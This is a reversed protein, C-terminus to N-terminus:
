HAQHPGEGGCVAPVKHIFPAMVGASRQNRSDWAKGERMKALVSASLKSLGGQRGLFGAGQSDSLDDVTGLM